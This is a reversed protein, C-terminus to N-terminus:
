GNRNRRHIARAKELYEPSAKMLLSEEGPVGSPWPAVPGDPWRRFFESLLVFENEVCVFLEKSDMCYVATGHAPKLESLRRKQTCFLEM